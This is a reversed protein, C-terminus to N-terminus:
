ELEVERGAVADGLLKKIKDRNKDLAPYLWPRPIPMIKTGGEMWKAYWVNSGVYGDISSGDGNSEIRHTISQVLRGTDIAPPNGEASAYHIHNGRKYAKDLDLATDRMEEKATREVLMCANAVSRELNTHVSKGKEQFQAILEQVQRRIEEDM